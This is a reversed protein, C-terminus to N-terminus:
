ASTSLEEIAGLYEDEWNRRAEIERLGRQTVTYMNTRKDLEGKKLLGKDVLDDLNPYLRGHNIEQEYYDDLEAKVALGHPEELGVIVYLIDRQFGTLDYM